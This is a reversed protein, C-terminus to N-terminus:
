SNRLMLLIIDYTYSIDPDDINVFKDIQINLKFRINLKNVTSLTLNKLCRSRFYVAMFEILITSDICSLDLVM